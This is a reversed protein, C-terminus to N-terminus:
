EGLPIWQSESFVKAYQTYESARNLQSSNQTPARLPKPNVAPRNLGSTGSGNFVRNMMDLVTSGSGHLIYFRNASRQIINELDMNKAM